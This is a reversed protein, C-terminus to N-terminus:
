TGRIRQSLWRARAAKFAQAKTKLVGGATTFGTATVEGFGGPVAAASDLFLILADAFDDIAGALDNGRAFPQNADPVGLTMDGTIRVHEFAADLDEDPFAFIHTRQAFAETIDVGNVVTAAACGEDHLQGIIICDNNPDGGPIAVIVLCGARPPDYGGAGVGQGSSPFRCLVPGEGDLGGGVLTVDVLWGLERDWVIADPDVDVRAMSIWSRPDIGPRSVGAAVRGFDLRPRLRALMSGKKAM